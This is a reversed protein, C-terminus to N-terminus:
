GTALVRTRESFKAAERAELRPKELDTASRFLNTVVHVNIKLVKGLYLRGDHEAEFGLCALHMDFSLAIDATFKKVMAVLM